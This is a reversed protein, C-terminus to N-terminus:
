YINMWEIEGHMLSTRNEKRSSWKQKSKNRTYADPFIQKMRAEKFPDERSLYSYALLKYFSAEFIKEQRQFEDLIYGITNTRPCLDKYDDEGM